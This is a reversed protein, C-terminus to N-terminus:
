RTIGLVGLVFAYTFAIEKLFEYRGSAGGHGADMNVRLLLPNGDTKLRRLRAVYKAPEWYMVQSDNLSTEVLMAPYDKASLNDYPSYSKMYDYYDKDKPNGWEEYEGTTLPLRDDLMTNIVDVFPVDAVVARFLEPRMNTVAGMLLGGASGGQIVLKGPDTYHEGILHEACSIFDTFTNMKKLMRGEDHWRKGMEGGGRVHAVGYIVGRDLLSLRASSFDVDLPYGYAGYGYLLLPQATDARRDIRYVLSIPVRTGDPAVSYHLESRYKAPEYGRVERQKLMKRERRDLHYDYETDPTIYSDYHFRFVDTHFVFNAGGGVSYVPEPMAIVHSESDSLRIVRLKPFGGAREHAVLHRAFVDVGELMVEARQPIKEKWNGPSPDEAPATVLRFNRGKDNTVVYFLAQGHDVYYEHEPQRAAVLKWPFAPADARLYRVESTTASHCTLFLYARSRSRAVSLSFRADAEEYILQDDKSGVLHRYLRYARKTGDERVYFLTRNDSAWAVSRVKEIRDSLVRGNRLDKLHMTYERFGSTDSSYALLNGDPSIEVAGVSYFKHGQALRNVDLIVAEAAEPSGQRRCFIRYQKGKETRSYYYYAGERYPVETDTEKIRALMEKYLKKQLGESPKMMAATYANEARLYARVSASAKNRLWHYGDVRREGHVVTVHPVRKALPPVRIPSRRM